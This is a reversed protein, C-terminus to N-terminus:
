SSTTISNAQSALFDSVSLYHAEGETSLSLLSIVLELGKLPTSQYAVAIGHASHLQGTEESLTPLELTLNERSQYPFDAAAV